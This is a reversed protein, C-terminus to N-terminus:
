SRAKRRRQTAVVSQVGFSSIPTPTTADSHLLYPPYVSAQWLTFLNDYMDRITPLAVVTEIHGSIDVSAEGGYTLPPYMRGRYKKGALSTRKPVVLPSYPPQLGDSGTMAGNEIEGGTVSALGGDAFRYLLRVLLFTWGIRMNTDAAPSDANRWFGSISSAMAEPNEVAGPDRVGCTVTVVGTTGPAEWAMTALGYNPPIIVDAMTRRLDVVYGNLM